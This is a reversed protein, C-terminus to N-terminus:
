RDRDSGGDPDRERVFGAQNIDKGPRAGGSRADPSADARARRARDTAADPPTGEPAGPRMGPDNAAETPFRIPM